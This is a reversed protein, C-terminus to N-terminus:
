RTRSTEAFIFTQKTVDLTINLTAQTAFAPIEMSLSIEYLNEDPVSAIDCTNLVVRTEYKKIADVIRNGILKANTKTIPEFLYQNLDLGYLPFLFRQGPRTNFLNRISNRIADEDYSVRVDNGQIKENLIPNFDGSKEVDFHWDKYIYEKIRLEKAIRELNKIKIAM